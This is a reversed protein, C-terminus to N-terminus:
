EPKAPIRLLAESLRMLSVGEDSSLAYEQVLGDVGGRPGAERLQRILRHATSAIAKRDAEPIRAADLLPRVADPEPLRCAATIAAFM